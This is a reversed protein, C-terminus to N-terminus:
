DPLKFYPPEEMLAHAIRVRHKEFLSSPLAEPPFYSLQSTEEGTADLEGGIVKCAFTINVMAFQDGNPYTGMNEPGGYIGTIREPAIILGTEERVERIVAEAPEEGPELIGGPIAWHSDETRRHLLVHGSDDLIIATVTPLLLLDHGIKSRLQRIYAPTPM